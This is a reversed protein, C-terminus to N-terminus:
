RPVDGGGAGVGAMRCGTESRRPKAADLPGGAQTGSVLTEKHEQGPVRLHIHIDVLGPFLSYGTLDYIELPREERKWQQYPALSPASEVIRGDRVLLDRSGFTGTGPDVLLANSFLFDSTSLRDYRGEISCTVSGAGGCM